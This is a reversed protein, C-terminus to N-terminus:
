VACQGQHRVPSRPGSLPLSGGGLGSDEELYLNRGVSGEWGDITVRSSEELSLQCGRQQQLIPGSCPLGLKKPHWPYRGPAKSFVSHIGGRGWVERGLMPWEMGKLFCAKRVFERTLATWEASLGSAAEAGIARKRM